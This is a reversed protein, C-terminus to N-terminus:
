CWYAIGERTDRSGSNSGDRKRHSYACLSYCTCCLCILLAVLFYIWAVEVMATHVCFCAFNLVARPRGFDFQGKWSDSLENLEMDDETREREPESVSESEGNGEEGDDDQEDDDGNNEDRIHSYVKQLADCMRLYAGNSLHEKEDEFFDQVEKLAHLAEGASM